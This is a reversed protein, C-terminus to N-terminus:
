VTCWTKIWRLVSRRRLEKRPSLLSCTPQFSMMFIMGSNGTRRARRSTGRFSGIWNPGGDWSIVVAVIVVAIAIIVVTKGNEM